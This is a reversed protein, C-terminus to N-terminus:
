KLKSSLVCANFYQVEFHLKNHVPVFDVDLAKKGDM